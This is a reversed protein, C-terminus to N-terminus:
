RVRYRQGQWRCETVSQLDITRWDGGDDQSQVVMYDFAEYDYIAGRAIGNLFPGWNVDRAFTGGSVKESKVFIPNSPTSEMLFAYFQSFTIEPLAFKLIKNYVKNNDM